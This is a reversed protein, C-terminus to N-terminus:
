LKPGSGERGCLVKGGDIDWTSGFITLRQADMGSEAPEAFSEGFIMQSWIGGYLEHNVDEMCAGRLWPSVKGATKETNIRIQKM